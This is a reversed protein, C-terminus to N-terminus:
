GTLSEAQENEPQYGLCEVAYDAGRQTLWELVSGGESPGWVAIRTSADRVIIVAGELFPNALRCQGGAESHITVCSVFGDRLTGSVLFAGQARLKEFRADRQRPWCPFLRIVGEHSQMLMENIAGTIGGCSEIGGGGYSLYLNPLAHPSRLQEGLKELIIEPDYGVRAAQTYFTPFSNFDDWVGLQRVTERAIELIEPSSGLGICGAPFVHQLELSNTGAWDMGHETLRFVRHGNREQTPFASIHSLIKQWMKRKDADQELVISAELLFTFIMRVFGLSLLPNVDQGSGEHISDGRIMYRGNEFCLASEWFNGVERVFEYATNQLYELDCTARWRMIMNVTAYAANSKQGWFNADSCIGWPGIGVPYLVGPLGASRAHERAQPRYDLLPQDYTAALEARNGSFVGWWPAKYNYNLHFDGRWAPTDTTIWNGFLGPAVKNADGCCCALIYYAGYYYRHILPDGVDVHSRNWYERWWAAHATRWAELRDSVPSGVTLRAAALPDAKDRNSVVATLLRVTEGPELRIAVGGNVIRADTGHCAMAVAVTLGEPTDPDVERSFWLENGATGTTFRTAQGTRNAFDAQPDGAWLRATLKLPGASSNNLECVLVNPNRPMWAVFDLADKAGSFRGRLEANEIDQEIIYTADSLASTELSLGGVTLITPGGHLKRSDRTWCDNKGFHFHLAEPPGSLVVGVDGNGLLPGDVVHNTPVNAPPRTFVAHSPLLSESM